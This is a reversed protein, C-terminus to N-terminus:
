DIRIAHFFVSVRFYILAVSLTSLLLLPLWLTEDFRVRQCLVEAHHPM